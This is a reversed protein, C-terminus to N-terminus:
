HTPIRPPLGLVREGISLLAAAITPMTRLHRTRAIDNAITLVAQVRVRAHGVSLERDTERLLRVWRDVYDRQTALAREQEADPLNAAETILLDAVHHNTITFDVYREVLLRLAEPPAAALLSDSGETLARGGESMAEALMDVKSPFHHYISPGAIGVAAGIDDTSVSHFGREAFLRVAATLLRDRTPDDADLDPAPHANTGAAPLPAELVSEAIDTLLATYEAMPLDIRQFSVSILAGMAAWTLLDAEDEALERPAVFRVFDREVAVLEERLRDRTAPDLHRSERQWLVGLGRNRLVFEAMDGLVARREGPEAGEVTSKLTDFSRHVVEYLLEHKSSFHRYLASPGIGVAEAIDSM